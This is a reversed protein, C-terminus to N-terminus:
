LLRLEEILLPHLLTPTVNFVVVDEMALVDLGASRATQTLLEIANKTLCPVTLWSVIDAKILPGKMPQAVIAERSAVAPTSAAVTIALPPQVVNVAM